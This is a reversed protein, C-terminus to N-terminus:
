SFEQCKRSVGDFYLHCEQFSLRFMFKLAYTSKISLKLHSAYTTGDFYTHICAMLKIGVTAVFM